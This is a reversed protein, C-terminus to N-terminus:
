PQAERANDNDRRFWHRYLQENGRRLQADHKSFSNFATVLFQRDAYRLITERNRHGPDAQMVAASVACISAEPDQQDAAARGLATKIPGYFGYEASGILGVLESFSRRRTSAASNISDVAKVTTLSPEPLVPEPPLTLVARDQRGRILCWRGALPPRVGLGLIPDATYHPAVPTFISWDILRTGQARNWAQAWNKVDGCGLARDLAYWLRLRLLGDGTFGASGTLQVVTTADHLEPPLQQVLYRAASPVDDLWNSVGAPAPVDDCDLAVWLRPMEAIANTGPDAHKARRYYCGGPRVNPLPAGRLVAAAPDKALASLKRGFAVIDACGFREFKFWTAHGYGQVAFGGEGDLTIRKALPEYEASLTRCITAELM